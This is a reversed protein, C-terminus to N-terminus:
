KIDYDTNEKMELNELLDSYTKYNELQVSRVLLKQTIALVLNRQSYNKCDTSM